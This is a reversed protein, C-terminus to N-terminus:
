FQHAHDNFLPTDTFKERASQACVILCGGVHVGPYAVSLLREKLVLEIVKSVTGDRELHVTLTPSHSYWDDNCHVVVPVNAQESIMLDIFLTQLSNNCTAHSDYFFTCIRMYVFLHM